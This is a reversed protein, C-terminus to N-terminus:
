APSETPKREFYQAIKRYADLLEKTAEKEKAELEAIDKELNLIKQMLKENTRQIDENMADKNNTNEGIFMSGQGTLLWNINVNYTSSINTLTDSSISVTGNEIQSIASQTVKIALAFEKQKINLMYRVAKVREGVTM